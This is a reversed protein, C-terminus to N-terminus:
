RDPRDALVFAGIILGAAGGIAAGLLVWMGPGGTAQDVGGFVRALMVAAIAGIAAGIWLGHMGTRSGRPITADENRRASMQIDKGQSALARQIDQAASEIRWLKDLVHGFSAHACCRADSPLSAAM